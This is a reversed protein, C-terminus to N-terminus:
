LKTICTRVCTACWIVFYYNITNCNVICCNRRGSNCYRGCWRGLSIVIHMISASNSATLRCFNISDVNWLIRWQKHWQSWWTSKITNAVIYTKWNWGIKIIISAICFYPHNNGTNCCKCSREVGNSFAALSIWQTKLMTKNSPM